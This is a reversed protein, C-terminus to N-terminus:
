RKPHSRFFETILPLVEQPFRHGNPHIYTMVDNGKKGKYLTTYKGRSEGKKCQNTTLAREICEKVRAIPVIEDAVGAAFFAPKACQRTAIEGLRSAGSATPAVAAFTEGRLAWLAHTFGGGNSHGMAYIRNRDIDYRTLLTELLKDFFRIDRGEDKISPMVWGNGRFRGEDCWLGQPFVVIAEEYYNNIPMNRSAANYNGKRGHFVFVLPHKGETTPAIILAERLTKDCEVTMVERKSKPAEEAVASHFFFLAFLAALVIKSVRLFYKSGVNHQM